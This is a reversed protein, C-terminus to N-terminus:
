LACTLSVEYIKKQRLINYQTNDIIGSEFADEISLFVTAAEEEEEGEEERPCVEEEEHNNHKALLPPEDM